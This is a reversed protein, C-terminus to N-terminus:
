GLAYLAPEYHPDLALADQLSREAEPEKGALYLADGLVKHTQVNQPELRAAERLSSLSADLRGAMLQSQGLGLLITARPPCAPLAREFGAIAEEFRRSEYAQRAHEIIKPCQASQGLLMGEAAACLVAPLRFFNSRVIKPYM